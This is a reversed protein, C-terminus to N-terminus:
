NYDIIQSNLNRFDVRFEKVQRMLGDPTTMVPRDYSKPRMGGTSGDDKLPHAGVTTLRIMM